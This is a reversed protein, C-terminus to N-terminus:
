EEKRTLIEKAKEIAGTQTYNLMRARYGFEVCALMTALRSKDLEKEIKELEDKKM